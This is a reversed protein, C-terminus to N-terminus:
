ALAIALGVRMSGTTDIIGKDLKDAGRRPLPRDIKLPLCLGLRLPTLGVNRSLIPLLALPLDSLYVQAQAFNNCEGASNCMLM